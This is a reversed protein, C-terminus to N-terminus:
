RVAIVSGALPGGGEIVVVEAVQYRCNISFANGSRIRIIFRSPDRGSGVVAFRGGARCRRGDIEEIVALAQVRTLCRVIGLAL